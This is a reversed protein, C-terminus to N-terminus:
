KSAGAQRQEKDLQEHFLKEYREVATKYGAPDIFSGAKMKAEMDYQSAHAALWIEPSLRKQKKFSLKYDDAIRPYKTNGVLPMVVTEMNAFLLSRKKGGDVVTTAYSVSGKSHGPTLIVTLETGGLRVVDGDRLRRDVTVPAFRVRSGFVPDSRGGDELAPADPETIYIKAGSAQQIEKFAAVHDDHAQMTLLIRIDEVKFGLKQISERILPGSDALGTNILIDGEPTTLLFCALDATGVYYVNGAIKYPPFPRSWNPNQQAIAFAGAALLVLLVRIMSYM